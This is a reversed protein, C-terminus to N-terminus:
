RTSKRDGGAALGLAIGDGRNTGPAMSQHLHPFPVKDGMMADNGPFGGTALVVGQTAGVALRKGNREVGVGLIAGGKDKFFAVANADSWLTVGVDLASRLLRGALALDSSCVDSSWDSIRM